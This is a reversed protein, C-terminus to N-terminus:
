SPCRIAVSDALPGRERRKIVEFGVGELAHKIVRWSQEGSHTEFFIICRRPLSTAAKPLLLEEHGEIDVKLLLSEDRCRDLFRILDICPVTTSHQQSSAPSDTIRGDYSSGSTFAVVGDHDSVAVEFIAANLGNLRCNERLLQANSAKPEFVTIRADRFRAAALLTFMGIHAGCDVIRTPRFPVRELEYVKELFVEQFVTAQSPDDTALLVKYGSLSPPRIEITPVNRLLYRVVRITSYKSYALRLLGYAILDRPTRTLRWYPFSLKV